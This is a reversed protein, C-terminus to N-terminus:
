SGSFVFGFDYRCAAPPTLRHGLLVREPEVASLSTLVHCDDCRQTITNELELREVHEM